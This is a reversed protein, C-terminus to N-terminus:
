QAFADTKDERPSLGTLRLQCNISNCCFGVEGDIPFMGSLNDFDIGTSCFSCIARGKAVDEYVELSNLLDLLDDDHVAKIKNDVMLRAVKRKYEGM